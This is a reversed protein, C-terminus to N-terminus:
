CIFKTPVCNLRDSVQFKQDVALERLELGRVDM